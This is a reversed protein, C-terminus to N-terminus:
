PRCRQPRGTPADFELLDEVVSPEICGLPALRMIVIGCEGSPLCCGPIQFGGMMISVEPCQMDQSGPQDREVCGASGGLASLDAGCQNDDTCCAPVGGLSGNLSECPSCGSVDESPPPPPQMNQGGGGPGGGGPLGGSTGASSGPFPFGSSGATPQPVARSGGSGAGSGAGGTSGASGGSTGAGGSSSSGTGASGTDVDDSGSDPTDSPELYWVGGDHGPVGLETLDRSESCGLVSVCACAALCALGIGGAVRSEM